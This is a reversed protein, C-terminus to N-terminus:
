TGRPQSAISAAATCRATIRSWNGTAIDDATALWSGGVCPVAPLSLYGAANGQSIGGTPCFQLAPFVAVFSKLLEIGGAHHAPFFKVADLGHSVWHAIESATQAGPLIPIDRQHCVEFVPMAIGPSVIFEAGADIVAHAQEATWVTGAGVCLRGFQTALRSISAVASDSRLTVEIVGMGGALLAEGLADTDSGDPIRTVPIVPSIRM